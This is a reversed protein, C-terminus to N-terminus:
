GRNKKHVKMVDTVNYVRLTESIRNNGEYGREQLRKLGHNTFSEFLTYKQAFFSDM